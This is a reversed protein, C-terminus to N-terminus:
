FYGVKFVFLVLPIQIARDGAPQLSTFFYDFVGGLRLKFDIEMKKREGTEM